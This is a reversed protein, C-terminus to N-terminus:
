RLLKRLWPAKWSSQVTAIPLLQHRQQLRAPQADAAIPIRAAAHRDVHEPLGALQRLADPHGVLADRGIAPAALKEAGRRLAYRARCDRARGDHDGRRRLQGARRCPQARLWLGGTRRGPGSLLVGLAAVDGVSACRRSLETAYLQLVGHLMYFGIGMITFAAFQLPWSPILAICILMIATTLGGGVTFGKEGFRNLLVGVTVSYVIGGLAFGSLVLGAISLRPEGQAALLGALYPFMGHVCAGEILVGSYCIMWNRNAFILRYGRWLGGLNFHPRESATVDRFGSIATACSILLLGTIIWLVVRWGFLDALVGGLFAGVLHGTLAGTLLRGIAVQRDKIPVLDGVFALSVPFIGGAAIGCAVRSALLVTFNPAIASATTALVLVLMCITMMRTKGLMDAAAGLFPQVLAFPLAFASSLLAATALAVSMDDAVQPMAPDLVRVTLSSTFAIGAVTTLVRTM